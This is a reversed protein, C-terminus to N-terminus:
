FWDERGEEQQKKGVPMQSANLWSFGIQKRNLHDRQEEVHLMVLGTHQTSFIIGCGAPTM